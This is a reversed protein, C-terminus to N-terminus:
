GVVGRIRGAMAQQRAATGGRRQRAGVPERHGRHRAGTAAPHVGARPHRRGATRDSVEEVTSRGMEIMTQKGATELHQFMNFGALDRRAALFRSLEAINGPVEMWEALERGEEPTLVPGNQLVTFRRDNKPISLADAHNTALWFSCYSYGWFARGYKVNFTMGKPAPDVLDKLVEYVSKKEGRRHATASTKTEDVTVLVNGHIWSNYASQSSTGDLISFSQGRAYEAGYLRHLIKFM